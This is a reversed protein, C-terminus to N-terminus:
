RRPARDHNQKWIEFADPKAGSEGIPHLTIGDARIDVAGFEIGADKAAKLVRKIEPSSLLKTM